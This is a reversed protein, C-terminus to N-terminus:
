PCKYMSTLFLKAAQKQPEKRMFSHHAKVFTKKFIVVLLSRLQAYDGEERWSKVSNRKGEWRFTQFCFCRTKTWPLEPM